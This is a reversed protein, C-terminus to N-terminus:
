GEGFLTGLFCISWNMATKKEASPIASNNLVKAYKQMEREPKPALCFRASNPFSTKVFWTSSNPKLAAPKFLSPQNNTGPRRVKRAPRNTNVLCVGVGYFNARECPVLRLRSIKCVRRFPVRRQTALLDPRKSVQGQRGCKGSQVMHCSMCFIAAQGQKGCVVVYIIAHLKKRMCLSAATKLSTSAKM